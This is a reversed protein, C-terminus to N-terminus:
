GKKFTWILTLGLGYLVSAALAARAWGTAPFGQALVYIGAFCGLALVALTVGRLSRVRLPHVWPMPIFAAVICLASILATAGAGFDFAFVYFAVLNWLAPFGVFRYAADKSESDAFHYLSSLLAGAALGMGLRGELKGWVIMALVPVFVYTVFDIVLDLVEGSYRPLREKVGVARAFTGDVGDIFLAVALWIFVGEADHAYVAMAALFAAVAGLATFLHVAAAAWIM